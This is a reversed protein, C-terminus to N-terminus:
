VGKFAEGGRSLARDLRKEFPTSHWNVRKDERYKSTTNPIGKYSNARKTSGSDNWYTGVTGIIPTEEPSRSPSKRPSAAATMERLEEVTLAGLIPRDEFSRPSSYGQSMSQPGHFSPNKSPTTEPPPLWNSLSADVAVEQNAERLQDSRTKPAFTPESSFSIRPPEFNIAALNEKQPKLPHRGRSKAAKWQTANEVPNLLSNIYNSRDRGNTNSGFRSEVEENIAEPSDNGTRSEMSPALKPESWTEQAVIRDDVDENYDDDYYDEAEEDEDMDDLDSDGYVEGEDDSDRANHYRHNPPYSGVSSTVSNDDEYISDTQSLIDDEQATGDKQLDVSELVSVHEYMTVNSNFTVRKKPSRSLQESEKPEDNRYKLNSPYSAVSSTVSNEDAALSHQQSSTKLDHQKEQDASIAAEPQSDHEHTTINSNFITGKGLALSLQEVAELKKRLESDLFNNPNIEEISQKAASPNEQQVNEVRNRQRQPSARNGRRKRRKGEKEGGFCGLFCGM